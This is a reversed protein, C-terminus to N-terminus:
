RDRRVRRRDNRYEYRDHDRYRRSYRRDYDYDDDDYYTGFSFSVSPAPRVYVPSPVYVPVPQVYVPASYAGITVYNDSCWGRAGGWTVDCWGSSCGNVILPSGAQVTTVVTFQTGPGSRMNVSGTAYGNGAAAITPVSLALLAGGVVSLLKKM